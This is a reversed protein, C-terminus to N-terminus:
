SLLNNHAYGTCAPLTNPTRFFLRMCRLGPSDIARVKLGAM